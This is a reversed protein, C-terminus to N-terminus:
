KQKRKKYKTKEKIYPIFRSENLPHQVLISSSSQWNGFGDAYGGNCSHGCDGNYKVGCKSCIAVWNNFAIRNSENDEM